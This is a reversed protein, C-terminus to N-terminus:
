ESSDAAAYHALESALWPDGTDTFKNGTVYYSQVEARCDYLRFPCSMM